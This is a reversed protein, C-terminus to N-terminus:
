DPRCLARWFFITFDLPPPAPDRSTIKLICPTGEQGQNITKKLQQIYPDFRRNFGVIFHIGAASVTETVTKVKEHDLDISKECFIQKGAKVPLLIYDYHFATSFAIIIANFSSDQVMEEYTDYYLDVGNEELFAKYKSKVSSAAVVQAIPCHRQVNSLHIKGIRGM